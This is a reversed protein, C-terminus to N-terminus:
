CHQASATRPRVNQNFRFTNGPDYAAKVAALRAYAADGYAARVRHEPENRGMAHLGPGLITGAPLRGTVKQAWATQGAGSDEPPALTNVALYHAAGRHRVATADAPVRTVAGGAIQDLGRSAAVFRGSWPCRM